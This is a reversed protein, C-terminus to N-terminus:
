PTYKQVLAELKPIGQQLAGNVDFNRQEVKYKQEYAVCVVPDGDCLQKNHYFAAAYPLTILILAFPIVVTNRLSEEMFSLNM